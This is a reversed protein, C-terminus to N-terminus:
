LARILQQIDLLFVTIEFLLKVTTAIIVGCISGSDVTETVYVRVVLCVLYM